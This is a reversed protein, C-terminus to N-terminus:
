VLVAVFHLATKVVTDEFSTSIDKYEPQVNTFPFDFSIYQDLPTPILDNDTKRTHTKRVDQLKGVDLGEVRATYRTSPAPWSEGLSESLCGSIKTVCVKSSKM